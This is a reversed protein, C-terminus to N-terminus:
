VLAKPPMVPNKGTERWLHLCHKHNNVYETKPPHYQVVCEDDNFFIDKVICMVDWTPTYNPNSISLHEWGLGDSIIAMYTRGFITVQYCGNSDNGIGALPHEIRKVKKNKITSLNRM